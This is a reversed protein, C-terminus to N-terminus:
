FPDLEDAAVFCKECVTGAKGNGDDEEIWQHAGGEPCANAEPKVVYQDLMTFLENMVDPTVPWGPHHKDKWRRYNARVTESLDALLAAYTQAQDDWAERSEWGAPPAAPASSAALIVAQAQRPQAAAGDDDDGAAMGLAALLGYRRYYTIASGTAQADRGAPFPLPEFDLREGSQHLLMVTCALGDGHAHVPTLAVLGHAALAPRTLRVVDAIDAFDYTYSGKEKTVIKATRGKEVVALDALAAVLAGALNPQLDTM